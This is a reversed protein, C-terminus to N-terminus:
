YGPPETPAVPAPGPDYAPVPTQGLQLNTNTALAAQYDNYRAAWNPYNVNFADVALEYEATQTVWKGIDDALSSVLSAAKALGQRGDALLRNVELELQGGTLVAKDVRDPFRKNAARLSAAIDEAQKQLAKSKAAQQKNQAM